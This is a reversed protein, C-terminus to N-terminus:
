SNGLLREVTVWFLLTVIVVIGIVCDISIGVWAGLSVTGTHPRLPCESLEDGGCSLARRSVVSTLVATANQVASHATFPVLRDDGTGFYSNSVCVMDFIAGVKPLPHRIITAHAGHEYM